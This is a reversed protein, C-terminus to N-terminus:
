ANGGRTELKSPSGYVTLKTANERIHWCEDDRPDSVFTRACNNGEITLALSRSRDEILVDIIPRNLLAACIPESVRNLEEMTAGDDGEGQAQRSGAVVGAPISVHWPPELWIVMGQKDGPECEVYLLLSNAALRVFTIRRGILEGRFSEFQQIPDM